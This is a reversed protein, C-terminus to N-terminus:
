KKKGNKRNYNNWNKKGGGRNFGMNMGPRSFNAGADIKTLEIGEPVKVRGGSLREIDQFITQDAVTDKNWILYQQRMYRALNRIMETKVTEDEIGAVLDIMNEINRGYCTAKIPTKDVPIPDPKAAKQAPSPMEYPADIDLDYGAIAYVHDWLKRKYDPYDKLSPNLLAMVNVVAQIQESRKQKDEIGKVREIMKQVHRGYEPLILKERYTNYDM